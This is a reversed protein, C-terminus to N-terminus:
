HHWCFTKRQGVASLSQSDLHRQHNCVVKARSLTRLADADRCTAEMSRKSSVYKYTRESSMTRMQYSRAHSKVFGHIHPLDMNKSGSSAVAAATLTMQRMEVNIAKTHTHILTHTAVVPTAKTACFLFTILLVLQFEFICLFMRMLMMM